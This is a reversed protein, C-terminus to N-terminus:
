PTAMSAGPAWTACTPPMSAPTQAMWRGRNTFTNTTTIRTNAAALEGSVSNNLDAASALLTNGAWAAGSNDLTGAANLSLAGTNGITGDAQAGAALTGSNSISGTSSQLSADGRAVMAAASGSNAIDGSTRVNLNATAYISGTNALSAAQVTTDAGQILGSNTTAQTTIIDTAAGGMIQAGTQNDLSHATVSLGAGAQAQGSNVISGAANLSLTGTAGM